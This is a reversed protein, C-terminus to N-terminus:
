VMNPFIDVIERLKRNHVGPQRQRRAAFADQLLQYPAVENGSPAIIDFECQASPLDQYTAKLFYHGISLEGWIHHILGRSSNFLELLNLCGYYYEGSGLTLGPNPTM